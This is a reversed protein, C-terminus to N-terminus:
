IKNKTRFVLTATTLLAIAGLWILVLPWDNIVTAPARDLDIIKPFFHTFDILKSSIAELYKPESTSYNLGPHIILFYGSMIGWGAAFFFIVKNWTKMLPYLVGLSVTLMPSITVIFRGTPAWGILFTSGAHQLFVALFSITLLIGLFRDRIFAAILGALGFIYIPAYPFLGFHSDLLLGLTGTGLQNPQVLAMGAPYQANPLYSGYWVKFFYAMLAGSFLYLLSLFLIPSVNFSLVPRQKKSGRPRGESKTAKALRSEFQTRTLTSQPVENPADESARKRFLNLYLWVLFLFLSIWLYKVHIWPLYSIAAISLFQSLFNPLREWLVRVAYCILLAASIESFLQVSYTIFPISFATAAFVIWAIKTQGTIKKIFLFINLALLAGIIESVARAGAVGWRSFPFVFILPWGINHVSYQHGNQSNVSVHADLTIGAYGWAQYDKQAYNNKLDLDHDKILSEAIILYHPEDGTPRQRPMWYNGALHYIYFSLALVVAGMVLNFIFQKTVTKIVAKWIKRLSRQRIQDYKSM